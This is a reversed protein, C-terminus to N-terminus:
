KKEGGKICENCLGYFHFQHTDIRFRYKKSLREEIKKVLQTEEDIFDKYDIIRGCGRCILHHHHKEQVGKLEYRARGDGFDFKNVIDLNALMDLTRYITTLGISPYKKHLEIYIEEASMHHETKDLIDLIVQRPFTLRFGEGRVKDYIWRPGLPM